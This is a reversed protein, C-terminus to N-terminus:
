EKRRGLFYSTYIKGREALRIYDNLSAEFVNSLYKTFNWFVLYPPSPLERRLLVTTDCDYHVTKNNCKYFLQIRALM